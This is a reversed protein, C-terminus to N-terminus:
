VLFRYSEHFIYQVYMLLEWEQMQKKMKSQLKWEFHKESWSTNLVILELYPCALLDEYVLLTTM